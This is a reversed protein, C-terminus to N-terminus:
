SRGRRAGSGCIPLSSTTTVPPPPPPVPVKNTGARDTFSELVGGDAALVTGKAYSVTVTVGYTIAAGEVALAIKTTDELAAASFSRVTGGVQLQVARAQGCPRGDGQFTITIVTGATSTAASVFVPPPGVVTFDVTSSGPVAARTPAGGGPM